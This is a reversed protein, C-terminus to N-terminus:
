GWLIYTPDEEVEALLDDLNSSPDADVYLHWKSNRDAYYLAWTSDKPDYRFQAVVTDVKRSQDNFMPRSEYITVSNGRVRHLVQLKDHLDSSVKDSCYRTLKADVLQRVLPPLPM